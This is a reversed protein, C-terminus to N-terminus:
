TGQALHTFNEPIVLPDIGLTGVLFNKTQDTLGSEYFEFPRPVAPPNFYSMQHARRLGKLLTVWRLVLIRLKIPAKM